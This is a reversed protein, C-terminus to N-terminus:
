QLQTVTNTFPDLQYIHALDVTILYVGSISNTMEPEQIQYVHMKRCSSGDVSMMGELPFVTYAEMSEGELGLVSPSLSTFYEMQDSLSTASQAQAAAQEEESLPPDTEVLIGEVNAVEVTLNSIVPTEKETTEETSEEEAEEEESDTEKAPEPPVYEAWGLVIRYLKGEQEAPRVLIIEGLPTSLDPEHIQTYTDDTTTFYYEEGTIAECYTQILTNVDTVNEYRFLYRDPFHSSPEDISLLTAQGKEMFTDISPVSEEGLMYVEPAKLKTASIVLLFAAIGGILLGAAVGALVLILVNPKSAEEGDGKKKGSKKERPPKKEKPPKKPKKEKVKKEKPKKEKPPTGEKDTKKFIGM